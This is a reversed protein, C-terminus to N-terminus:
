EDDGPPISRARELLKRTKETEPHQPGLVRIRDDLLRELEAIAAKRKVRHVLAVALIYRLHMVSPTDPRGAAERIADRAEAEAEADKGQETLSVALTRRVFLTEPTSPTWIRRGIAVIERLMREAEGARGQNLVARALSHRVVMTDSHEPGRVSREAAVVSSLLKEADVWRGQELVAKAYKHRSALTDAHNTGLITERAAIVQQLKKEALEPEGRELAIRGEEHRLSLIERDDHYLGFEECGTILPEILNQAPGLLGVVILYRATLRALELASTVVERDRPQKTRLLAGPAVGVAHPAIINWVVWGEAYDPNFNRTAALLMQVALGYYDSHREKVDEDERFVGHVLPQLSLVHQVDEDDVDLLKHPEILGVDALGKLAALRDTTTSGSFLPSRVVVDQRLLLHYPIPAVNMCAFVKLLPAATALGQETLLDLSLSFVKRVTNLGLSEGLDGTGSGSRSTFRERLAARYTTLDRIGGPNGAWVKETSVKNLYDAAARLALPLGDLDKSLRRAEEGSRVGADPRLRDLLVAAGDIESLPLVQHVTSWSGWTAENNAQTTVLVMGKVTAPERLWGTGDSVPGDDPALRTPDDANDFVLLWPDTQANLLRWVLDTASGGQDAWARELEGEPAGLQAAVQRMCSSIRLVPVWFVKRGAGTEARYAIELALRSKGCGGRGALVHVGRSADPSMIAGLFANRGQLPTDRRGYPPTITVRAQREPLNEVASPPPRDQVGAAVLAKKVIKYRSDAHSSPKIISFHDGDVVGNDPFPNTAIVTPVIKDITGGYAAIPILCETQSVGHANVISRLVTAQTEMVVREFPRLQREQPHRRGFGFRRLSMLFQSGSNPCAFMVVSKIRHLEDAKGRWVQRALLRQVVLGGQSHTVFVISEADQLENEYYTRLRDAVDDVEAIRQDLRLRVFPSDYEFLHVTVFPALEDDREILDVFPRWTGPSPFLGHVFVLDIPKRATMAVESEPSLPV